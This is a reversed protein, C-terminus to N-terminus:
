RPSIARHRVHRPQVGVVALRGSIRAARIKARLRARRLSGANRQFNGLPIEGERQRVMPTILGGPLAVAVGVDSHKHQSCVAKRDVAVNGDPVRQFHSRLRRSSSTTSRFKTPRNATGQGQSRRREIEERAAMVAPRHRLRDHSLFAPHNAKLATLRQAIIQAM